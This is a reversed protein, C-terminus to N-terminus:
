FVLKSPKKLLLNPLFYINSATRRLIARYKGFWFLLSVNLVHTLRDFRTVRYFQQFFNWLSCNLEMSLKEYIEPYLITFFWLFRSIFQGKKREADYTNSDVINLVTTARFRIRRVTAASFAIFLRIERPNLLLQVRFCSFSNYTDDVVSKRRFMERSEVIKVCSFFVFNLLQTILVCVWTIRTRVSM